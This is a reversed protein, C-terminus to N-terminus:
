FTDVFSNLSLLHIAMPIAIKQSHFPENHKLTFLQGSKKVPLNKLVYSEGGKFTYTKTEKQFLTLFHAIGEAKLSKLLLANSFGLKKRERGWFVQRGSLFIRLDM